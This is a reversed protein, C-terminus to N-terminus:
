RLNNTGPIEERDVELITPRSQERVVNGQKAARETFGLARM